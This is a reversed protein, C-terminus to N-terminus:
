DASLSWKRPPVLRFNNPRSQWIRRFTARIKQWTCSRVKDPMIDAGFPAVATTGSMCDFAKIAGLGDTVTHEKHGRRSGHPRPDCRKALNVLSDSLRVRRERALSTVHPVCHPAVEDHEQVIVRMTRLRSPRRFQDSTVTCHRTFAINSVARDDREVLEGRVSRGRHDQECAHKTRSTHPLTPPRAQTGVEHIL